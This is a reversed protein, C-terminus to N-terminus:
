QGFERAGERERRRAWAIGSALAEDCDHFNLVRRGHKSGWQTTRVWWEGKHEIHCFRGGGLRKGDLRLSYVERGPQAGIKDYAYTM